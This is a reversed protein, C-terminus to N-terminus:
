RLDGELPIMKGARLAQYLRDEGLTAEIAKRVDDADPLTYYKEFVSWAEQEEDAYLHLLMLKLVTSLLDDPYRERDLSGLYEILKSKDAKSVSPFSRNAPLFSGQAPDYKFIIPPYPSMVHPLPGFYAFASSNLTIEADGDGDLDCVAFEGHGDANVYEFSDFIPKIQPEILQVRLYNCCHAGRSYHHILLLKEASGLLAVLGFSTWGRKSLDSSPWRLHVRGDKEIIAQELDGTTSIRIALGKYAIQDKGLDPSPSLTRGFLAEQPGADRCASAASAQPAGRLVVSLCAMFIIVRCRPRIGGVPM